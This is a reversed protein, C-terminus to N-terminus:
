VVVFISVWLRCVWSAACFMMMSSRWGLEDLGILGNCSLVVM